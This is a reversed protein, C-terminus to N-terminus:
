HQWASYLGSCIDFVTLLWGIHRFLASKASQVKEATDVIKKLDILSVKFRLLCTTTKQSKNSARPMPSSPPLRLRWKSCPTCSCARLQSNKLQNKCTCNSIQAKSGIQVAWSERCLLTLWLSARTSWLLICFLVQKTRYLLPFASGARNDISHRM